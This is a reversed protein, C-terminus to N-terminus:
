RRRGLYPRRRVGIGQGENSLRRVLSDKAKRIDDAYSDAKSKSNGADRAANRATVLGLFRLSGVIDLTVGVSTAETLGKLYKLQVERASVPPTIRIQGGRPAWNLIRDSEDLNVDIWNTERVEMWDDSSGQSREFLAVAEIYDTPMQTLVTDGQAVTITISENKLPAVEYVDLEEELEELAMNVFPLLVTSTYVLQSPDNLHTAARLTVSGATKPM